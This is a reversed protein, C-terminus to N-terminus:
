YMAKNHPTTVAYMCVSINRLTYGLCVTAQAACTILCIYTCQWSTVSVKGGQLDFMFSALFCAFFTINLAFFCPFKLSRSAWISFITALPAKLVSFSSSIRSNPSLGCKNVWYLQTWLGLLWDVGKLTMVLVLAILEPVVMLIFCIVGMFIKFGM